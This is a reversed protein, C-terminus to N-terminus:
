CVVGTRTGRGAPVHVGRGVLEIARGRRASHARWRRPRPSGRGGARAGRPRGRSLLLRVDLATEAQTERV